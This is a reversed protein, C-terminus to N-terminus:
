ARSVGQLICGQPRSHVPSCFWLLAWPRKDPFELSGSYDLLTSPTGPLYLRQAGHPFPSLNDSPWPPLPILQWFTWSIDEVNWCGPCLDRKGLDLSLFQFTNQFSDPSNPQSGSKGVPQLGLAGHAGKAGWNGPVHSLDPPLSQSIMQFPCVPM